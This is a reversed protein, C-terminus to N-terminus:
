PLEMVVVTEVEPVPPKLEATDNDAVPRGEPTVALKVGVEIAAGPVPLEVSRNVALLVAVVPVNLTVTLAVPPPIVCVEVTARVTVEAWVGLKATLADGVLTDTTCLLEALVVIDLVTLPPKLAAIASEAVPKGLPTVALKLGAEIAAGPLPLEVSVNEALLVAVVPV